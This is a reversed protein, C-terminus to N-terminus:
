RVLAINFSATGQAIMLRLWLALYMEPGRSSAIGGLDVIEDANWGFSQLLQSVTAKADADEGSVFIVHPQAFMRPRVMVAATVTNLTKVVRAGPFERQIREGLSDANSIALEPPFGTDHAIPNAVDILVKGALAGGGAAHLADLSAAGATANVILEGSAAAEAFSGEFAHAGAERVWEVARENGKARSGMTVEHGLEVLRSALTQGVVGTGLVGVRM